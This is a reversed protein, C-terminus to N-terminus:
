VLGWAACCKKYKQGSGCPCVENRGCQLKVTSDIFYWRGARCVFSSRERHAHEIADAERWRATFTVYARDPTAPEHAEVTLGLWQSSQSWACMAPVDLAAQQAPLTSSVLYEVGGLVYASYRSRMLAEAHPATKGQHYPACCDRYPSGTGCPCVAGSEIVVTKM